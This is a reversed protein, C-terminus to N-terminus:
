KSPQGRSRKTHNGTMVKEAVSGERSEKEGSPVSARSEVKGLWSMGRM